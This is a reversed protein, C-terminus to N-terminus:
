ASLETNGPPGNVRRGEGRVKARRRAVEAGALTLRRRRGQERGTARPERRDPRPAKGADEPRARSAARGQSAPVRRAAPARSGSALPEGAGAARVPAAAQLGADRGVGGPAAPPVSAEAAPDWVVSAWAPLICGTYGSTFGLGSRFAFRQERMNKQHAGRRPRSVGAATPRTGSAAKAKRPCLRKGNERLGGPKKGGTPGGRAPRTTGTPEGAQPPKPLLGLLPVHDRPQRSDWYIQEGSRCGGTGLAPPAAPAPPPSRLSGM